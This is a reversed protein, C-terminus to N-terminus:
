YRLSALLRFEEQSPAVRKERPPFTAEFAALAQEDVEFVPGEVFRGARGRLAGPALELALLAVAFKGDATRIDFREAGRFGFRSYYRPDGYICVAAYGLERAAQLSHRILASGVGQQQWAPRVSVPGFTLLPHSAGAEDVIRARSYAIQGVLERGAAAVFDLEPVFDGSQRLRHLIFHESAGPVYLNWFAERVLEEVARYDGPAERRLEFKM